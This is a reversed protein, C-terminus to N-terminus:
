CHIWTSTSRALRSLGNPPRNGMAIEGQGQEGCQYRFDAHDWVIRYGPEVVAEVPDPKNRGDLCVRAHAHTRGESRGLGLAVPPCEKLQLARQLDFAFGLGSKNSFDQAHQYALATGPCSPKGPSIKFSPAGHRGFATFGFTQIRIDPLLCRLVRERGIWQDPHATM